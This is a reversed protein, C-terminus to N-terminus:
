MSPLRNSDGLLWAIWARASTGGLFNATVSGDNSTSWGALVVLRGDSVYVTYVEERVTDGDLESRVILGSATARDVFYDLNLEEVRKGTRPELDLTEAGLVGLHETLTRAALTSSVVTLDHIGIWFSERLLVIEGGLVHITWRSPEPDGRKGFEMRAIAAARNQLHAVFAGRGTPVLQDPERLAVEGRSVLLHVIAQISAVKEVESLTAFRPADFDEVDPVNVDSLIVLEEDSLQGISIGSDHVLPTLKELIADVEFDESGFVEPAVDGLLVSERRRTDM